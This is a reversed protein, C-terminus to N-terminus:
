DGVNANSAFLVFWSLVGLALILGSVAVAVLLRRSPKQREVNAVDPVAISPSETEIETNTSPENSRRQRHLRPLSSNEDASATSNDKPAPKYNFNM